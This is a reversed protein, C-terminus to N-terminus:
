VTKPPVTREQYLRVAHARAAAVTRFGQGTIPSYVSEGRDIIYYPWNATPHGCWEVSLGVPRGDVMLVYRAKNSAAVHPIRWWSLVGVRLDAGGELQLQETQM